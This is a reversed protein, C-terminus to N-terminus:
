RNSRYTSMNHSCETDLSNTLKTRLKLRFSVIPKQRVSKEAVERANQALSVYNANGSNGHRTEDVFRSMADRNIDLIVMDESQPLKLRLNKAM